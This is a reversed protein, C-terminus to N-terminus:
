QAAVGAPPAAAAEEWPHVLPRRAGYCRELLEVSRRGERGCVLPDRRERIAQAFDALQRAFMDRRTIPRAPDRRAGAPEWDLGSAILRIRPCPESGANELLLTGREFELRCTSPLDRLKSVLVDARPGAAFQLSAQCEAEM